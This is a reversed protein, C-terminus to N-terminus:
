RLNLAESTTEQRRPLFALGAIFALLPDAPVRFRSEGAVGPVFILYIVAVLVLLALRFVMENRHSKAVKWLGFLIAAALIVDYVLAGMGSWFWPNSLQSELSALTDRLSGQDLVASLVGTTATDEGGFVTAWTGYEAGLLTRLIGRANEKIFVVPYQQIVGLSYRMPSPSAAIISVAEDRSYGEAAALTKAVYWNQFTSEGVESLTLQGHVQLNRLQWPLVLGLVGIILVASAKLTPIPKRTHRWDLLFFLVSLIAALPLIIPRTLAGLSFALGAALMWGPRATKWYRLLCWLGLVLTFGALTETMLVTSWFAANPNLLYIIVAALGAKRYGVQFGISYLLGATVFALLVQLISIFGTQGQGLWLGAVVFLPYGPPRVLDVGPYLTGQYRGTHLLTRALDLYDYSDRTQFRDTYQLAPIVLVLHLLVLVVIFALILKNKM